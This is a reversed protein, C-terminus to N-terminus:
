KDENGVVLINRGEAPIEMIAGSGKGAPVEWIMKGNIMDLCYLNGDYDGFWAREGSIAPSAAIYGGTEFRNREKGTLPDAIRVMGDCGGFVIRNNMVAPTGNVYNETELKWLLRGTQPDVCHLYYDYSGFILGSSKSSTWINASGVIQNDTSYSWILRGSKKDFARMVGDGAGIFLKDGHIVPAAEVPSGTEKKWIIRGGPSVAYVTGKLNGFYIIGDSIVPSSKSGEGTSVTWLLVPSAPLVSATHGTLNHTGRFVPWDTGPKQSVATFSFASFLTLIVFHKM